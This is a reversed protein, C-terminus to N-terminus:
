RGCPVVGLLLPPSGLGLSMHCLGGIRGLVSPLAVRQVYVEARRMNGGPPQLNLHLQTAPESRHLSDAPLNGVEEPHEARRVALAHQVEIQGAGVGLVTAVSVALRQPVQIDGVPDGRLPNAVDRDGPLQEGRQVPPRPAPHPLQVAQKVAESHVSGGKGGLCVGAAHVPAAAPHPGTPGAADRASPRASPRSVRPRSGQTNTTATLRGSCRTANNGSTYFSKNM